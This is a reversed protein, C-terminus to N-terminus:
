VPGDAVEEVGEFLVAEFFVGEDDEGVVVSGGGVEFGVVAAEASAFAGDPFAAEADGVGESPFALDIGAGGAGGGDVGEVDTVGKAFLRAVGVGFEIFELEDAGVEEFEGLAGFGVAGEVPTAAVGGGDAVVVPFEDGGLVLGGEEEIDGGVHLLLLVEELAMGFFGGAEVFLELGPVVGKGRGAPGFFGGIGVVGVEAFIPGLVLDAM